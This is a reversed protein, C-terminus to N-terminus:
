YQIIGAQSTEKINKDRAQKGRENVWCGVHTDCTHM